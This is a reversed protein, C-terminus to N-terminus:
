YRPLSFGTITIDGKKYAPITPPPRKSPQKVTMPTGLSSSDSMAQQGISLSFSLQSSLPSDSLKLISM